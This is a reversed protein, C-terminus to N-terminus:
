RKWQATSGQFRQNAAAIQGRESLLVKQGVIIIHFPRELSVNLVRLGVHSFMMVLVEPCFVHHHLARVVANNACRQRFLEFSGAPPDLSLDHLKLVEDLHTLDDEGMDARFDAELHEFSTFERRHDFTGAKHPVIVALVGDCRLVREWEQLAKLPNATHELVHSSLVFDYAEDWVHSLECAEAVFQKGFFRGFKAADNPSTWLNNNRFNCADIRRCLSYIPMLHSPEFVRSPGGIELGSKDTFYHRLDQWRDCRKHSLRRLIGYPLQQLRRVHYKYHRINTM